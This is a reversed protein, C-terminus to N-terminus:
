NLIGVEQWSKELKEVLEPRNLSQCIMITKQAFDKFTAYPSLGNKKLMSNYWIELSGNQWTRTNGGIKENFLYFVRNPLSSNIHVGGYDGEETNPLNVYGSMDFPQEDKGLISDDYATGPNKMSRLGVGNVRKTFINKGIIWDSKEVSLNYKKQKATIGFVDSISENLAGSQNEYQLNSEWQTISHGWEHGIVDFIKSFDNFYYGDGTGFALVEGDFFANNYKEGFKLFIQNTGNKNDFSERNLLDHFMDYVKDMDNTFRRRPRTTAHNAAIFEEWIKSRIYDWNFQNDYVLIHETHNRDVEPEVGELLKQQIRKRKNRFEDEKKDVINQFYARRKENPDNEAIKKLIKKPIIQCM